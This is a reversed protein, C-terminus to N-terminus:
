WCSRRTRWDATPAALTSLVPLPGPLLERAGQEDGNAYCCVEWRFPIGPFVRDPLLCAALPTDDHERQVERVAERVVSATPTGGDAVARQWALQQLEPTPLPLLQRLQYENQPPFTFLQECKWLNGRGANEPLRKTQGAGLARPLVGRVDPPEGPVIEGTRHDVAGGGGAFVGGDGCRDTQECQKLLNLEEMQLPM